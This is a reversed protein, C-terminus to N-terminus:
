TRAILPRDGDMQQRRFPTQPLDTEEQATGLVTAEQELSSSKHCYTSTATVTPYYLNLFFLIFFIAEGKARLKRRQLGSSCSCNPSHTTVGQHKIKKTM